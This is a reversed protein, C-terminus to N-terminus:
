LKKNSGRSQRDIERELKSKRGKIDQAAGAAMGSGLASPSLGLARQLRKAMKTDRYHSPM